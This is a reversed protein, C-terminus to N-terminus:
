GDAGLATRVSVRARDLRRRLTAVVHDPRDVVDARTFEFVTRGAHQLEHGRQADRAREADSAHGLRGSVEVVLGEDFLFDVRAFTRSGARHIVQPRPRPLGARRVLALFRRELPSHGGSDPLLTDIRPAGWRGPGRLAGLRRALVTPATAGSRVASDIAAELRATPIALRALDIITRTASTCPFGDVVVRDIGPLTETTHIRFPSSRGRGHRPVTFEVADPVHRDFRHLRAAAEHSVVATPGLNLLGVQLDREVTPRSGAAVYVRAAAPLLVGRDRLRRLDRVSM